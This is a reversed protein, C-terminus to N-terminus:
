GDGNRQRALRRAAAAVRKRADAIAQGWRPDVESTTAIPLTLTLDAGEPICIEKCVLWDARASLTVSKGSLFDPVATVDVLLLVEGDYGYNVLPGM